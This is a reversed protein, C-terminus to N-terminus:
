DWLSMCMEINRREVYMNGDGLALCTSMYLWQVQKRGIHCWETSVLVCNIPGKHSSTNTIVDLMINQVKSTVENIQM